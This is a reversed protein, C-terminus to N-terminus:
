IKIMFEHINVESNLNLKKKLRYKKSEVARVTLNLIQAMKKTDYNLKILSCFHMENFSLDSSIKQLVDNFNPFLFCFKEFYLSSNTEALKYIETIDESNLNNIIFQTKMLNYYKEELENFHEKLIKKETKVHNIYQDKKYVFYINVFLTVVSLTANAIKIIILTDEDKLILESKPIFSFNILIPAIIFILSIIFISSVYKWDEKINYLFPISSLIPFYYFEIKLSYNTYISLFSTSSLLVIYSVFSYININIGYVYDKKKLVLMILYYVIMLLHIKNMTNFGYLCAALSFHFMLIIIILLLYKNISKYVYNNTENETKEYNNIITNFINKVIM